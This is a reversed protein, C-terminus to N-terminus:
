RNGEKMADALGQRYHAMYVDDIGGSLLDILKDCNKSDVVDIVGHINLALNRLRTITHICSMREKNTM